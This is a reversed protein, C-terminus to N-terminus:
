VCVRSRRELRVARDLALKLFFAVQLSRSYVSKEQHEHFFMCLTGFLKSVILFRGEQCTHLRKNQDFTQM